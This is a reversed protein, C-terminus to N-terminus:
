TTSIDALTKSTPLEVLELGCTGVVSGQELVEFDTSPALSSDKLEYSRDTACSSESGSVMKWDTLETRDICLGFTM